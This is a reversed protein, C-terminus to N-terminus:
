SSGALGERRLDSIMIRNIMDDKWWGLEQVQDVVGDLLGDITDPWDSQGLWDWDPTFRITTGSPRGPSSTQAIPSVIRGRSFGIQRLSGNAVTEVELRSCVACIQPLCGRFPLDPVTLSAFLAELPERGGGFPEQRLGHGTDTVTADHSTLEVSLVAGPIILEYAADAVLNALLDIARTPQAFYMDPRKYIGDIWPDM